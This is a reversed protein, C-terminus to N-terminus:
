QKALYNKTEDYIKIINSPKIIKNDKLRKRYYEIFESNRLWSVIITYRIKDRPIYTDLFIKM